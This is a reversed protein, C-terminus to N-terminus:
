STDSAHHNSFLVCTAQAPSDCKFAYYDHYNSGNMKSAPLLVVCLKYDFCMRWVSMTWSLQTIIYGIVNLFVKNM